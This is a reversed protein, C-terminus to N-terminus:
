ESGYKSWSYVIECLGRVTDKGLAGADIGVRRLVPIVVAAEIDMLEIVYSCHRETEFDEATLVVVDGHVAGCARCAAPSEEERM